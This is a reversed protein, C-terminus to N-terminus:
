RRGRDVRVLGVVDGAHDILRDDIVDRLMSMVGIMKSCEVCRPQVREGVRVALRLPASASLLADGGRRTAHLRAPGPLSQGARAAESDIGKRTM